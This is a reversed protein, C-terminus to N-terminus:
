QKIRARMGAIGVGLKQIGGGHELVEPHIGRGQDSVELAVENRGARLRITSTPSGSYRYVNTLSEQVIRFLALEVEIPLRGFNPSVTLAVRIGSRKSFEETFSSLAVTLGPDDLFPPHLSYAINRIERQCEQTSAASSALADRAADSLRSSEQQVM